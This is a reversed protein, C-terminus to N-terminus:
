LLPNRKPQQIRRRRKSDKFSAPLTVTEWKKVCDKANENFVALDKSSCKNPQLPCVLCHQMTHDEEGCECTTQGTEYGWRAM